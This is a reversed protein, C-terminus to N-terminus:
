VASCVGVLTGKCGSGDSQPPRHVQRTDGRLRCRVDAPRCSEGLRSDPVGGLPAVDKSSARLLVSTAPRHSIETKGLQRLEASDLPKALEVVVEAM